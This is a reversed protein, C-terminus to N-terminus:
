RRGQGRNQVRGRGQKRGSRRGRGRGYGQGKGPSLLTGSGAPDSKKQRNTFSVPSNISSDQKQRRRDLLTDVLSALLTGGLVALNKAVGPSDSYESISEPELITIAAPEKVPLLSTGPVPQPDAFIAQNPCAELCEGCSDCLQPDIWALGNKMSIANQPCTTLCIGCGTCVAQNITIM